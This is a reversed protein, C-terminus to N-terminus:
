SGKKEELKDSELFAKQAAEQEAIKKNNGFGEALVIGELLVRAIFYKKGEDEKKEVVEYSPTKKFLAQLKEQLNTKYDLELLKDLDLLDEKFISEIWDKLKELGAELFYVACVSEFVSALLRSNTNLNIKKGAESVLIKTDLSLLMAKKYLFVESVLASRAKSLQGESLDRYKSYLLYTISTNLVSDGLFELKENSEKCTNLNTQYFSKHTFALRLLEQNKIPPLQQKLKM